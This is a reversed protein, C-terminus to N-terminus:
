LTHHETLDNPFLKRRQRGEDKSVKGCWLYIQILLQWKYYKNMM